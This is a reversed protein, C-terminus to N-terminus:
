CYADWKRQLASPMGCYGEPQEVGPGPGEPRYMIDKLKSVGQLLEIMKLSQRKKSDPDLLHSIYYSLSYVIGERDTYLYRENRQADNAVNLAILMAQLVDPGEDIAFHLVTKRRNRWSLDTKKALVRMTKLRREEFTGESNAVRCWPRSKSRCVVVLPIMMGFAEHELDSSHWQLLWQVFEPLALLAATHLSGDNVDKGCGLSIYAKLNGLYLAAESLLLDQTM